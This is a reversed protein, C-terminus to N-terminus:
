LQRTRCLAGCTCRRLWRSASTSSIFSATGSHRTQLRTCTSAMREYQQQLVQWHLLPSTVERLHNYHMDKRGRDVSWAGHMCWAAAAAPRARSNHAIAAGVQCPVLSRAHIAQCQTFLYPQQGGATQAPDLFQLATSAPSCSFRIGLEVQCCCCCRCCCPVARCMATTSACLWGAHTDTAVPATM